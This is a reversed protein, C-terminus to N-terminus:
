YREFEGDLDDQKEKLRLNVGGAAKLGGPGTHGGPKVGRAPVAQVAKGPRANLPRRM